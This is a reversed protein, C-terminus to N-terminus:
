SGASFRNLLAVDTDSRRWSPSKLIGNSLVFIGVRRFATDVHRPRKLYGSYFDRPTPAAPTPDAAVADRERLMRQVVDAGDPLAPLDIPVGFRRPADDCRHWHSAPDRWIQRLAFTACRPGDSAGSTRDVRADYSSALASGCSSRGHGDLDDRGTGGKAGLDAADIQGLGSSSAM